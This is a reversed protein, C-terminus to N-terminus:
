VAPDTAIIRAFAGMKERMAYFSIDQEAQINGFIRGSDQQPFFGKPVIMFLYINLAITALLVTLVTRQHRLVWRLTREYFHLLGDFVREAARSLRGHGRERNSQPFQAGMPPTRTRTVLLWVRIPM